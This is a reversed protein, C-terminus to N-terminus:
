AATKLPINPCESTVPAPQRPTKAAIQAAVLNLRAAHLEQRRIEAAQKRAEDLNKRDKAAASRKQSEFGVESSDEARQCLAAEDKRSDEARQSLAAEDLRAKRKEARVNALERLCKHFAREHTTQYRLYLTLEDKSNCHPTQINFCLGQLSLARQMLWHHQAMRDVLLKETPTSPQHESRLDAVLQDFDERCEWPVIMFTGTLGHRWRNQSVAAKGELSRPGTSLQANARNAALRAPSLAPPDSRM